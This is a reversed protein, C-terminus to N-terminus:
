VRRVDHDVDLRQCRVWGVATLHGALDLRRGPDPDVKGIAVLGELARNEIASRLHLEDVRDLLEDFDDAESSTEGAAM